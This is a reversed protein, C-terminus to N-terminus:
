VHVPVPVQQDTVSGLPGKDRCGSRSVRTQLGARHRRSVGRVPSSDLLPHVSAFAILSDLSLRVVPALGILSIDSFEIEHSHVVLCYLHVM